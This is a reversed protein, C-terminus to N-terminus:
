LKYFQSLLQMKPDIGILLRNFDMSAIAEASVSKRESGKIVASEAAKLIRYSWIFVAAGSELSLIPSSFQGPKLISNIVQYFSHM